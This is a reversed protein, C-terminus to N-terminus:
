PKRRTISVLSRRLLPRPTLEGLTAAARVLVGPICRPRNRQVALLGQRVVEAAEVWAVAPPRWERAGAVDQFETRVPGPCLVTVHVGTGRLELHLAESFSNVFAKTAGYTAMEPMPMMGATSGVSLIGGRGRAIMGPLLGHTLEMVAAVNVAVMERLKDVRAQAFAGYDGFGANNVLLDVEIGQGAVWGLFGAVAAPERLDAAYVHVVLEPRGRQLEAALVELRDRRRAVLVLVAATGALQRAFEMGIGASAGTIVATRFVLEEAAM